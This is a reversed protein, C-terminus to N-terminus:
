ILGNEQFSYYGEGIIVHDYVDIDLTEAARKVSVTLDKDDQSPATDGSPHNHCLIMGRANYRLAWRMIQALDVTCQTLGGKAIEVTGLNHLQNDLFMVYFHEISEYRLLPKFHEAVRQADNMHARRAPARGYLRRGLEIAAALKMARSKTLGMNVFDRWDAGGLPLKDGKGEGYATCVERVVSESKPGLIIEMLAATSIIDLREEM